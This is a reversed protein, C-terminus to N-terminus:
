SQLEWNAPVRGVRSRVADIVPQYRQQWHARFADPVGSHEYGANSVKALHPSQWAADVNLFQLVNALFIQPAACLDEYFFVGLRDGFVSWNQLTYAYDSRVAHAPKAALANLEDMSLARWDIGNKRCHMRLGSWLRDIPERLILVIRCDDALLGHVRQVTAADLTAYAPTIEGALQEPSDDFLALYDDDSHVAHYFQWLWRANGLSPYRLLPRYRSVGTRHQYPRSGAPFMSPPYQVDFWHLEKVVPLWLQPHERLNEWLWTTGAKQAGIGLFRPGATM